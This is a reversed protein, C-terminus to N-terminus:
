LPWSRLVQRAAGLDGLQYVGVASPSFEFDDFPSAELGNVLDQKGVGVTIHPSYHEASHVPVFEEVYATTAANIVPEEATTVFAAATGGSATFPALAEVLAEHLARLAPTPEIVISALTTGPPTGFEASIISIAHLRLAAVDRAAVVDEVAAFVGELDASRVYRQLVTVHPRHTEDLAFGSPLDDRLMANVAGARARTAEDPELLVDIATLVAM